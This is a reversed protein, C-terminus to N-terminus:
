RGLRHLFADVETQPLATNESITIQGSVNTLSELGTLSQLAMNKRIVLDGSIKVLQEVGTLDALKANDTIALSTVTTLQELGRLNLLQPNSQLRLSKVTRLNAFHQLDPLGTLSLMLTDLGTVQPLDFTTLKAVSSLMISTVGTVEPMEVTTLQASQGIRIKSVTKLSPLSLTDLKSYVIAFSAATKLVHMDLSTFWGSVTVDGGVTELAPLELKEAKQLALDLKGGVRNLKRLDVGSFRGTIVFDGDITALAPATFTAGDSWSNISIKGGVQTLATATFGSTGTVNGAVRELAPLEVSAASLKVNGGVTTLSPMAAASDIELNGTVVRVHSLRELSGATSFDSTKLDGHFLEDSYCVTATNEIESDELSGNDNLDHGSRVSVGGGPCLAGSGVNDERLLTKHSCTYSTVTIESPDLIGNDDADIGTHVAVGGGACHDGIPEIETSTLKTGGGVAQPDDVGCAMLTSFLFSVLLRSRM